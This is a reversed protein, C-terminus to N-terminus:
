SPGLPRHSPTLLRAAETIWMAAFQSCAGSTPGGSPLCAACGSARFTRTAKAHKQYSSCSLALFILIRQVSGCSTFRLKRLQVAGPVFPLAGCQSERPVLPVWSLTRVILVNLSMKYIITLRTTSQIRTPSQIRATAPQFRGRRRLRHGGRGCGSAGLQRQSAGTSGTRSAASRDGECIRQWLPPEGDLGGIAVMQLIAAEGHLQHRRLGQM